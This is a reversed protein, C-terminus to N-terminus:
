IVTGCFIQWLFQFGGIHSFVAGRSSKRFYKTQRPSFTKYASPSQTGGELGAKDIVSGIM